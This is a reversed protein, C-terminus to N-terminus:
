GTGAGGAALQEALAEAQSGIEAEHEAWREPNWIELHDDVGIVVCAGSLNAHDILHRPLRVRGASDLREDHASANFRRVMMRGDRTLPNLGALFRESFRTYAGVPYLAICPDLSQLLVVGEDLVARFRAPITIRDKSDLSHEYRGRFAL